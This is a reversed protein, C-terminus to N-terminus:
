YVFEQFCSVMVRVAGSPNSQKYAEVYQKAMDVAEDESDYFVPSDVAGDEWHIVVAYKGFGM